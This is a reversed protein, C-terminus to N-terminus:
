CFSQDKDAHWFRVGNRVEKKLYQLSIAINNSQTNQSHKVIDTLLLLIGKHSFTIGLTSFDVKINIQM